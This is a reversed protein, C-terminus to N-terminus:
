RISFYYIEKWPVVIKKNASRHGWYKTKGEAKEEPGWTGTFVLKDHQERTIWKESLWYDALSELKKQAEVFDGYGKIKTVDLSPLSEESNLFGKNRLEREYNLAEEQALNFDEENIYYIYNVKAFVEAGKDKGLQNIYENKRDVEKERQFNEMEKKYDFADSVEKTNPKWSHTIRSGIEPKDITKRIEEVKADSVAVVKDMFEKGKEDANSWYDCAGADGDCIMRIKYPEGKAAPIGEETLKSIMDVKVGEKGYIDEVNGVLIKYGKSGGEEGSIYHSMGDNIVRLFGETEIRAKFDPTEKKIELFGGKGIEGGTVIFRDNEQMAIWPNELDFDVRFTQTEKGIKYEFTEDTMLVYNENGSTKAFGTDSYVYVNHRPAGTISIGNSFKTTETPPVFIKGNDFALTGDRLVDGDPLEINKGHILMQANLTLPLGKKTTIWPIEKLQEFEPYKKIKTGEPFNVIGNKISFISGAPLEFEGNIYNMSAPSNEKIKFEVDKLFKNTKDFTFDFKKDFDINNVQLAAGAYNGSGESLFLSFKGTERSFSIESGSPIDSIQQNDALSFTGYAYKESVKWKGESIQGSLDIKLEGGNSLDYEAENFRVISNETTGKLTLIGTELDQQPQVNQGQLEEVNEFNYQTKYDIFNEEQASVQLFQIFLFNAVLFITVIGFISSKNKINMQLYM